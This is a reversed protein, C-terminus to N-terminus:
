RKIDCRFNLMVYVFTFSVAECGFDDKGEERKFQSGEKGSHRGM